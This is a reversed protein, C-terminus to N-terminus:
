RRLVEELYKLLATLFNNKQFCITKSAHIYQTSCIDMTYHHSCQARVTSTKPEFGPVLLIKRNTAHKNCISEMRSRGSLPACSCAGFLALAGLRDKVLDTM